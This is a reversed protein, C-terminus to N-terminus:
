RRVQAKRPLVRASKDSKHAKRKHHVSATQRDNYGSADGRNPISACPAHPVRGPLDRDCIIALTVNTRGHPLHNEM